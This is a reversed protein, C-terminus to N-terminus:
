WGVIEKADEINLCMPPKFKLVNSDPGDSSYIVFQQKLRITRHTFTMFTYM